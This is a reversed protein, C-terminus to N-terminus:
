ANREVKSLLSFSKLKSDYFFVIFPHLFHGKHRTCIYELAV